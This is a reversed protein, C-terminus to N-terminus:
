SSSRENDVVSWLSEATSFTEATLSSDPLTIDFEDEIELLLAVSAMSDLGFEKLRLHPIIEEDASLYKLHRRLITTYAENLM